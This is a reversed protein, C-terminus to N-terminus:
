LLFVTHQKFFVQEDSEKSDVNFIVYHKAQYEIMKEM